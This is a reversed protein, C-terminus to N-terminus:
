CVVILGFRINVTDDVVMAPSPRVLLFRKM